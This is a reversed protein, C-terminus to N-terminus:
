NKIPKTFLMALTYLLMAGFLCLGAIYLWRLVIMAKNLGSMGKIACACETENIDDVYTIVAYINILSAVLYVLAVISLLVLIVQPLAASFGTFYGYSNMLRLVGVLITFGAFYKIFEQRWGGICGCHKASLRVVWILLATNIIITILASILIAIPSPHVSSIGKTKLTTSSLKTKM